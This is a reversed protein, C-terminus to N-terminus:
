VPAAPIDKNIEMIPWASITSRTLYLGFHDFLQSNSPHEQQFISFFQNLKESSEAVPAKHM